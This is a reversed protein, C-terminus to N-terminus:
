NLSWTRPKSTVTPSTGVDQSMEKRPCIRLGHQISLQTACEISVKGGSTTGIDHWGGSYYRRRGTDMLSGAGNKLEVVVNKTQFVVIINTALNQSKEQRADAYTMSFPYTTPSGPIAVGVGGSAPTTGIAKKWGSKYYEAKGGAIGGGGSNLM